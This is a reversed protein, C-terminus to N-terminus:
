DLYVFENSNLLLLAYRTLATKEDLNYKAKMSRVFEVDRAVEEPTPVRSTTLRLGRAVQEDLDKAEKQLRKALNMAQENSFEGNLLGLATGLLLVVLVAAPWSLGLQTQLSIALVHWMVIGYGVTLDIRGAMMPIMAALALLAIISKDGLISRLNLLTPFTHPLVASFFAILLITLGAHPDTVDATTVFVIGAWVLAFGFRTFYLTRLARRYSPRPTTAAAITM